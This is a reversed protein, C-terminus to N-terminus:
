WCGFRCRGVAGVSFTCLRGGAQDPSGKRDVRETGKESVPEAMVDIVKLQFRNDGLLLNQHQSHIDILRSGLEKVVSLPVPSDNVFARSKGSAFLERRLICIEADYELDNTLFFEELKYRSVDFVAEIVCKESGNKISKGDARQGLVLSLAGLIISKGAGTEGTIVSFGKDFKIDLSDILVFNRIFLSKLM